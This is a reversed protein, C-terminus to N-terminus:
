FECKVTTLVQPGPMPYGWEEEYDHDFINKGTVQVEWFDLFRKAISADVVWYDTLSTSNDDVTYRKSVYRYAWDFIWDDDTQYNLNIKCQHQPRYIM